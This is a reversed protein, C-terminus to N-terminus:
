GCSHWQPRPGGARGDLLSGPQLTFTPLALRMHHPLSFLRALQWGLAAASACAILPRCSPLVRLVHLMYGFLILPTVSGAARSLGSECAGVHMQYPRLEGGELLEPPDQMDAVLHKALEGWAGADAGGDGQNAGGRASTSPAGDDAATLLAKAAARVKTAGAANLRRTLAQLIGDTESM